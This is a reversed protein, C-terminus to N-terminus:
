TSHMQVESPVYGYIGNYVMYVMIIDNIQLNEINANEVNKTTMHNM